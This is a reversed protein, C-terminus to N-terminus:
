VTQVTGAEEVAVEEEVVVVLQDEMEYIDSRPTFCRCDRTRETDEAATVEQKEAELEMLKNEAM